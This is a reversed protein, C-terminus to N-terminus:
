KPLDRRVQEQLDELATLLKETVVGLETVFVKELQPAEVHLMGNIKLLPTSNEYEYGFDEELMKAFAAERLVNQTIYVEYSVLCHGSEDLAAFHDVDIRFHYIKESEVLRHHHALVDEVVVRSNDAKITCTEGDGEHVNIGLKEDKTIRLLFQVNGYVEIESHSSDLAEDAMSSSLVASAGLLVVFIGLLRNM